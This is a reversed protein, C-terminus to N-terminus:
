YCSIVILISSGAEENIKIKESNSLLFEIKSNNQLVTRPHPWFTILISTGNKQKAQRVIENIIKKHGLHIGDFYGITAITYGISKLSSKDKIIKM